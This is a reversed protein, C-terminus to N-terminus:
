INLEPANDRQYSSWNGNETLEERALFEMLEETQGFQEIQGNVARFLAEMKRHDAKKRELSMKGYYSALFLTGVSVTGLLIKLVTRWVDPNQVPIVPSPTFGGFIWEFLIGGFYLVIACIGALRLLRDNRGSQGATRQGAKEHYIRQNELWCDRINRVKEPSKGINLACVACLIWPTEQQETWPMIQQVEIRSGAFRLFLQVRLAEALMRYEIYRGHAAARKALNVTIIAALLALGCLLIMCTLGAEDYLLFTLAVATGLLALIGMARRYKRAFRLSLYDAARMVAEQRRIVPDSPEEEPLLSEGDEPASAALRNFEETRALIEDLSNRNGLVRVTGAETEPSGERPTMVHIAALNEANRCAMGRRPRWAGQLAVKVMAPTGCDSQNEDKGDWLALLVHSHEVIYIGAQRFLSDRDTRETEEVPASLAIIRQARETQRHLRILDKANFDKEYAAQEMPLVACLPIELEEAVEACLLDAGRALACLLVM